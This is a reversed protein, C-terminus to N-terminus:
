FSSRPTNIAYGSTVKCGHLIVPFLYAGQSYQYPHLQDDRLVKLVRLQLLELERTINSSNRWPEQEAAAITGDENVPTQVTRPCGANGSVMPM